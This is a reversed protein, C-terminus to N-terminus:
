KEVLVTTDSQRAKNCITKNQSLRGKWDNKEQKSAPFLFWHKNMGSLCEVVLSHGYVKSKKRKRMMKHKFSSTMLNGLCALVKLGKAETCMERPGSTTSIIASM